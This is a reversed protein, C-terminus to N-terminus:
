EACGGQAYIGTGAANAGCENPYTRGDCGCVPSGGEFCFTPRLRCTSSADAAGCLDGERYACYEDPACPLGALGGCSRATADACAGSRAVNVRAAGASCHSDYTQGDCGCVPFVPFGDAPCPAPSPHFCFGFGACTDPQSILCFGGPACDFDSACPPPMLPPPGSDGGGVSGFGGDAGLGSMGAGALFDTRSGGQVWSPDDSAGEAGGSSPPSPGQSAAGGQGPGGGSAALAGAAGSAGRAQSLSPAAGIENGNDSCAVGLFTAFLALRVYSM